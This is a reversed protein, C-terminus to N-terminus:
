VEPRDIHVTSVPWTQTYGKFVGMNEESAAPDRFHHCFGWLFQKWNAPFLPSTRHRTRQMFLRGPRRRHKAKTRTPSSTEAMSCKAHELTIRSPSCDAALAQHETSTDSGIAWSRVQNRARFLSERLYLTRRNPCGDAM